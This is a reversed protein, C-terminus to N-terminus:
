RRLLRGLCDVPPDAKWFLGHNEPPTQVDVYHLCMRLTKFRDRSIVSAVLDLKIGKRWYMNLQPYPLCGFIFHAGYLVRIEKPTIKVEKNKTSMSYMNTYLAAVEFHDCSLYKEFYELPTGISAARDYSAISETYTETFNKQEWIIKNNEQDKKKKKSPPVLAVDDETMYGAEDEDLQEEDLQEEDSQTEAMVNRPVPLTPDSDSDDDWLGEIESDSGDILELVAETDM